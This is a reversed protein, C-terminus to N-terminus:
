GVVSYQHPQNASLGLDEETRRSEAAKIVMVRKPAQLELGLV